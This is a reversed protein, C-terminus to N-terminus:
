GNKVYDDLMDSQKNLKDILRRGVEGPAMIREAIEEPEIGNNLESKIAKILEAFLEILEIM